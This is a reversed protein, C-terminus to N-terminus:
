LIKAHLFDSIACTTPQSPLLHEACAAVVDDPCYLPPQASYFLYFPDPLTGPRPTPRKLPLPRFSHNSAASFLAMNGNEAIYPEKTSKCVNRRAKM